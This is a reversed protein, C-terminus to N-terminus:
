AQPSDQCGCECEAHSCEPPMKISVLDRPGPRSPAVNQMASLLRCDAHMRVPRREGLPAKQLSM